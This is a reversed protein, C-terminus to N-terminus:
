SIPKIDVDYSTESLLTESLSIHRYKSDGRVLEIIENRNEPTMRHGLIIGTVCAPPLAYLHINGTPNEIIKDADRLPKLVRWEQEYAWEEGKTLFMKTAVSSLHEESFDVFARMSPREKSYIVKRLWNFDDEATRRTDFFQHQEDFSIVFGSYTGAYHSWMLRHTPNESLSLLGLVRDLMDPITSVLERQKLVAQDVLENFNKLYFREYVSQIDLGNQQAIILSREIQAPTQARRQHRNGQKWIEESLSKLLNAGRFRGYDGNNFEETAKARIERDWTEDSMLSEIYPKMEWPDNLASHQSFRILGNQLVDKRDAIVYKYLTM